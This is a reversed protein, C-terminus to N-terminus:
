CGRVPSLLHESVVTLIHYYMSVLLRWYTYDHIHELSTTVLYQVSVKKAMAEMVVVMETMVTEVAVEEAVGVLDVGVVAEMVMKVMRTIVSTGADVLDEGAVVGGEDVEGTAVMVVRTMVALIEVVKSGVEDEVEELDLHSCLSFGTFISFKLM